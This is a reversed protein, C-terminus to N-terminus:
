YLAGSFVITGFPRLIETRRLSGGMGRGQNIGNSIQAESLSKAQIIVPM